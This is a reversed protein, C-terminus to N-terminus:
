QRTKGIMKMRRQGFRSARGAFSVVKDAFRVVKGPLGIRKLGVKTLSASGEPGLGLSVERTKNHWICIVAIVGRDLM